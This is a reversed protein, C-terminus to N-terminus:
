EAFHKMKGYDDRGTIRFYCPHNRKLKPNRQNPEKPILEKPIPEKPIPEEPIPEKLFCSIITHM